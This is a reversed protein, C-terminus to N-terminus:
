IQCCIWTTQSLKHNVSQVCTPATTRILPQSYEVKNQHRSFLSVCVCVCSMTQKAAALKRHRHMLCLFPSDAQVNLCSYCTLRETRQVCSSKTTKILLSLLFIYLFRALGGNLNTWLGKEDDERGGRQHFAHTDPEVAAAPFPGQNLKSELFLQVLKTQKPKKKLKGQENTVVKWDGELSLQMYPCWSGGCLPSTCFIKICKRLLLLNINM